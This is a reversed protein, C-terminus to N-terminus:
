EADIRALHRIQEDTYIKMTVSQKLIENAKNLDIIQQELTYVKQQLLDIEKKDTCSACECDSSEYHHAKMMADFMEEPM